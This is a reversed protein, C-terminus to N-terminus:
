KGVGAKAQVNSGSGTGSSQGTGASTSSQTQGYTGSTGPSVAQLQSIFQDLPQYGANVQTQGPQTLGATYSPLGALAAQQNGREATYNQFGLNGATNSVASDLANASAGSGGRGSAEFGSDINPRVQQAAQQVMNAFFPNSASLYSGNLTNAETTNGTADLGTAATVGQNIAGFGANTTPNGNLALGQGANLAGTIQGANVPGNAYSGSSSGSAINNTAQQQQQSSDSSGGGISACVISHPIDCIWIEENCVNM